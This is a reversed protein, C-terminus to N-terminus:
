LHRLREQGTSLLAVAAAMLLWFPSGSLRSLKKTSVARTGKDSFSIGERSGVGEVPLAHTLVTELLSARGSM